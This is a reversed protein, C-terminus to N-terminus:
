NRIRCTLRNWGWTDNVAGAREMVAITRFPAETFAITRFPAQLAMLTLIPVELAAVPPGKRSNPLGQEGACGAALTVILLAGLVLVKRPDMSKM